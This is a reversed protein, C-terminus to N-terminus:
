VTDPQLLAPRLARRDHATSVASAAASARGGPPRGKSSAKRMIEALDTETEMRGPRDDIRRLTNLPARTSIAGLGRAM